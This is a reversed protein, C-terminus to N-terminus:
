ANLGTGERNHRNYNFLVSVIYFEPMLCSSVMAVELPIMHWESDPYPLLISALSMQAGDWGHICVCECYCDGKIFVMRQKLRGKVTAFHKM